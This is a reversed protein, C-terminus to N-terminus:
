GNVKKSSMGETTPDTATIADSGRGEPM